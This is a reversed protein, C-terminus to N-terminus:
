IMRRVPYVREKTLPAKRALEWEGAFLHRYLQDPLLQAFELGASKGQRWAVEARIPGTGEIFLSVRAGFTLEGKPDDLSCGGQSLERYRVAIEKGSETQCIGIAHTQSREYERAASARSTYM